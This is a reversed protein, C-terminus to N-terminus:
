LAARPNAIAESLRRQFDAAWSQAQKRSLCPRRYRLIGQLGDKQEIIELM